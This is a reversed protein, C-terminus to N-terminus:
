CHADATGFGTNVGYIVEGAAVRAEIGARTAAMRQRAEPALDVRAAHRAVAELQEITLSRGDLIVHEM